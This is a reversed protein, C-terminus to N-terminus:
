LSSVMSSCILMFDKSLGGFTFLSSSFPEFVARFAQRYDGSVSKPSPKVTMVLYVPIITTIVATSQPLVQDVRIYHPTKPPRHLTKLPLLILLCPIFDARDMGRGKRGCFHKQNVGFIGCSRIKFDNARRRARDDVKNLTLLVLLYWHIGINVM